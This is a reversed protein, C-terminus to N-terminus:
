HLASQQMTTTIVLGLVATLIPVVYVIKMMGNITIENCTAFVKAGATSGTNTTSLVLTM